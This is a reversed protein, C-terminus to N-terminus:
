RNRPSRLDKRPRSRLVALQMTVGALIALAFISISGADM